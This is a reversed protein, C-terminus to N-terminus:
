KKTQSALARQLDMPLEAHVRLQQHTHPHTFGLESAHLFHRTLGALQAGGYLGDGAIPHGLAALQARVQHRGAFPVRVEVLCFEGHVKASLIETEIAKAGEFPDADVKVRKSDARLYGHIRRPAQLQGSCLALYRKDFEGRRHAAHLSHFTKGVRAALMVGSTDTDLRHMIGPELPSHGVGAMEPYRALLASALTGLEEARLPHSPMGAPKNAVVLWADEHLIELPQPDPQAVVPLNARAGSVRDGARLRQGKKFRAGNVRIEGRELQEALAARSASRGALRLFRDIREGDHEASVVIEWGETM